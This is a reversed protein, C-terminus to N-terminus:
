PVAKATGYLHLIVGRGQAAPRARLLAFRAYSRVLSDTVSTKLSPVDTFGLLGIPTFPGTFISTLGSEHLM